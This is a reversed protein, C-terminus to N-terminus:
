LKPELCRGLFLISGTQNDRILFVFPRDAKFSPIFPVDEPAAVATDQVVATAAAAETGKENVELFAKHFVDSIFLRHRPDDSTCMGDFQASPEGFQPDTFARIMGMEPLVGRPTEGGDGLTYGTELKFKPLWVRMGRQKLRGIWDTINEANLQKEVAPLGDHRNPAIVLMSLEKGKYPLDVIAFGDADPYLGKKQGPSIMTPSNFFIGDANFAAYRANEGLPAFMLPVKVKEGSALSFDEVETGESDFPTAWAGKFYIANTLILRTDESVGGEPILNQIRNKTQDGIWDNIRLRVSKFENIFDVQFIGGTRYHKNVTDIFKQRFPYSKEGWLANAVRLEYQDVNALEADLKAVMPNVRKEVFENYADWDERQIFQDAKREVAMLQTQLKAIRRRAKKTAADGEKSSIRKNISAMGTHILSTEWPIRQAENGVRRAAQPFRLVQGMQVATEGRAGETAMALAGSVSYPSFFLSEGENERALQQYLDFAFDSNAQVVQKTPASDPEAALLDGRSGEVSGLANTLTVVGSLILVRTLSSNMTDEGTRPREHSGVYFKTREAVMNGAPTEITLSTTAPPPDAGDSAGIERDEASEVLLEGHELRVLAPKVIQFDASGTPTISWRGVQQVLPSETNAQAPTEERVIAPDPILWLSWVGLAILLCTSVALVPVLWSPRGMELVVVPGGERVQADAAATADTALNALLRRKAEDSLGPLQCSRLRSELQEDSKSM